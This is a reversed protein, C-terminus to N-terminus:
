NTYGTVSGRVKPTMQYSVSKELHHINIRSCISHCSAVRQRVFRTVFTIGLNPHNVVGKTVFKRMWEYLDAGAYTVDISLETRAWGPFFLCTPPAPGAFRFWVKLFRTM